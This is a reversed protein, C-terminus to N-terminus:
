EHNKRETPWKETGQNIKDLENEMEPLKEELERARRIDKFDIDSLVKAADRLQKKAEDSLNWNKLVKEIGWTLLPSLIGLITVILGTM